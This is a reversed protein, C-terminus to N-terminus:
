PVPPWKQLEADGVALQGGIEGVFYQVDLCRCITCSPTQPFHWNKDVASHILNPVFRKHCENCYMWKYVAAQGCAPCKFPELELPDHSFSVDQKCALCVGSSDFAIPSNDRGSTYHRYVLFGAVGFVALAFAGLALTKTM